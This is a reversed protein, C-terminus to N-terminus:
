VSRCLTVPHPRICHHSNGWFNPSYYNYQLNVPERFFFFFFFLFFLSIRMPPALVVLDTTPIAMSYTSNTIRVSAGQDVVPQRVPNFYFWTTSRCIAPYCRRVQMINTANYIDRRRHVLGGSTSVNSRRRFVITWRCVQRCIYWGCKKKKNIIIM